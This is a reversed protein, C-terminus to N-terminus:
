QFFSYTKNFIMSRLMDNSLKENEISNSIDNGSIENIVGTIVEAINSLVISNQIVNTTIENM